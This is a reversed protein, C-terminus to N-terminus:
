GERALETPEDGEESQVLEDDADLDTIDHPADVEEVDHTDIDSSEADGSDDAVIEDDSAVPEMFVEYDPDSGGRAVHQIYAVSFDETAQLSFVSADTM